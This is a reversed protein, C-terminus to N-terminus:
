GYFWIPKEGQVKCEIHINPSVQRYPKGKILETTLYDWYTKKDTKEECM